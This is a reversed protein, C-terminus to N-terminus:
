ELDGNDKNKKKIEDLLEKLKTQSAIARIEEQEKAEDCSLTRLGVLLYPKGWHYTIGYEFKRESM